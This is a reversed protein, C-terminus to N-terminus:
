PTVGSEDLGDLWGNFGDMGLVGLFAAVEDEPIERGTLFWNRFVALLGAVAYEAMFDIQWRPGQYQSRIRDSVTRHLLESVKGLLNRNEGVNLLADYFERDRGLVETLFKYLSGPDQRGRRLDLKKIEEEITQALESEIEDLVQHVGRYYNYFTKRNIDAREAIDTVTIDNYDKESLLEAFASRISRKTRVVRRDEKKLINEM